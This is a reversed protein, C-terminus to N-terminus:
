GSLSRLLNPKVAVRAGKFQRPEFGMNSLSERLKEDLMRPSYGACRLLSVRTM